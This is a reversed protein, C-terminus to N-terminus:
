LLEDLMDKIVLKEKTPPEKVAKNKEIKEKKLNKRMLSSKKLRNSFNHFKSRYIM